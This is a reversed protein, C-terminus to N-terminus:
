IHQSTASPISYKASFLSTCLSRAALFQMYSWVSRVSHTHTPEGTSHYIIYDLWLFELSPVSLLLSKSCDIAIDYTHHRCSYLVEILSVISQIFNIIGAENVIPNYHRFLICLHQMHVTGPHVSTQPHLHSIKTERSLDILLVAVPLAAM